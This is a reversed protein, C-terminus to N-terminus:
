VGGGDVGEGGRWRKRDAGQGTLLFCGEGQARDGGGGQGHRDAGRGTWVREAREGGQGHRGAGRCRWEGRGWGFGSQGYGRGSVVGIEGSAGGKGM